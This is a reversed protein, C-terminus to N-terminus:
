KAVGLSIAAVILMIMAYVVAPAFEYLKKM